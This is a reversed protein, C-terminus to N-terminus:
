KEPWFGLFYGWLIHGFFFPVLTGGDIPDQEIGM